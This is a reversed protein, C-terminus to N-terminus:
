RCCRWAWRERYAVFREYLSEPKLREAVTTLPEHTSRRGLRRRPGLQGHAAARAGRGAGRPSRRPSTTSATAASTRRCIREHALDPLRFAECWYRLYSRMGARSLERLEREAADPVVRRLNRELQQVSAGHRLWAQDALRDFTARAAPRPCAACWRGAPPSRRLDSVADPARVASVPAGDAPGGGAPTRRRMRQGVTVLDAVALVWLGVPVPDVPVGFLGSLGTPVLATSWGSAASPSASTARDHGLGEARAKAYSVVLAASWASSRSAPSGRTTARPRRVVLLLAGFVARTPSGTSRPTSSRGGRPEVPGSLRAMTGDLIDSFVFATIVLTGSSSSAARSLVRVRAASSARAHRGPSSTRARDRLRLLLRAGLPTLLRTFFAKAYRALM